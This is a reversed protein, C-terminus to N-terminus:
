HLKKKKLSLASQSLSDEETEVQVICLTDPLSPISLASIYLCFNMVHGSLAKEEAEQVESIGVSANQKLM